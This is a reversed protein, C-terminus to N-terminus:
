GLPDIGGGGETQPPSPPNLGLPDWGGGGETEAPPPTTLGLPDWGSGGKNQPTTTSASAILYLVLWVLRLM